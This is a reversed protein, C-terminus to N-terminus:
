KIVGLFDEIAEICAQPQIQLIFHPGDITPVKLQPIGKQLLRLSTAPILRDNTPQIYLCPISVKQLEATVDIKCLIKFRQQLVEPSVKNHAKHWLHIIEETIKTKGFIFQLFGHPVPKRMLSALPLLRFIRMVVPRPIKAFTACLILAKAEIRRSAILQLAIPGSFSEAIIVPEIDTPFQLAACEATEAFSLPENVPYRVVTMATDPPLYPLLPEFSFGTGDLGPMFVLHSHRIETM